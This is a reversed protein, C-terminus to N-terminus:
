PTVLRASRLRAEFTASASLAKRSANSLVNPGVTSARLAAQSAGHGKKKRPKGAAGEPPAGVRPAPKPRFPKGWERGEVVREGALPPAEARVSEEVGFDITAAGPEAGVGAAEHLTVERVKVSAARRGGGFEVDGPVDRLIWIPAPAVRVGEQVKRSTPRAEPLRGRASMSMVNTRSTIRARLDLMSSAASRTKSGFGRSPSM